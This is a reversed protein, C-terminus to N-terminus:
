PNDITKGQNHGFYDLRLIWQPPRAKNNRGSHGMILSNDPFKMQQSEIPSGAPLM